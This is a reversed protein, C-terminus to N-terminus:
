GTSCTSPPATSRSRCWSAMWARWCGISTPGGAPSAASLHRVIEDSNTHFIHPGYQHILVGAEDHVDFANGAVHPRRDILLVKKNSGAALREAIVSGAFGAGVVLADFHSKRGAPLVAPAAMASGADKSGVQGLSSLAINAQTKAEQSHRVVASDVLRRWAPM